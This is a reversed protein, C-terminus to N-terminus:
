NSEDLFCDSLTDEDDGTPGKTCRRGRTSGTGRGREPRQGFVAGIEAMLAERRKELAAIQRELATLQHQGARQLRKM